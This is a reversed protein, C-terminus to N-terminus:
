IGGDAVQDRYKQWTEMGDSLLVTLESASDCAVLRPFDHPVNKVGGPSATIAVADEMAPLMVWNGAKLFEFLFQSVDPTIGRLAIMCGSTLVEAFIEAAGGDNFEIVCSGQDKWKANVKKLVERVAREEV